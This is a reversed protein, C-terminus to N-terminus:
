RAISALALERSALSFMLLAFISRKPRVEVASTDSLRCRSLSGFGNEVEVKSCPSLTNLYATATPGHM